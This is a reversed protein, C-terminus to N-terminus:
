RSLDTQSPELIKHANKDQDTSVDPGLHKAPTGLMWHSQASMSASTRERICSKRTDRAQNTTLDDTV